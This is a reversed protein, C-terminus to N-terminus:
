KSRKTIRGDVKWESVCNDSEVLSGIIYKKIYQWTLQLNHRVLINVTVTPYVYKM